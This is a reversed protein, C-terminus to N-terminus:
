LKEIQINKSKTIGGQDDIIICAVKPLQEMRNLGVKKGM